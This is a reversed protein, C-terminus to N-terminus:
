PLGWGHDREYGLKILWDGAREKMLAVLGPTFHDVWGGSGGKRFSPSMDTDSMVSLCHQAAVGLDREDIILKHGELAAARGFLYRLILSLTPISDGVLDEYRVSLVWPVDLWPAYQAWRDFLGPWPGLGEIGARIVAEFGERENLERFLGKGPHFLKRDAEPDDPSLFHFAQSVAIDRPDRYLFIKCIGREAMAQELWEAHGTHGQYYLGPMLGDLALMIKEKPRWDLGWGNGGFGGAWPGGHPTGRVTPLCALWLAHLGSKPMANIYLKPLVSIQQAQMPSEGGGKAFSPAWAGVVVMAGLKPRAM